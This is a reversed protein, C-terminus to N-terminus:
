LIIKNKMTIEKHVKIGDGIESITIFREKLYNELEISKEGLQIHIEIALYDILSLDLGMLFDYEGGECDIKLYNIRNLNFKKFIDDLSITKVMEYNNDDWYKSDIISANGSFNGDVYSKLKVLKNSEKGVAYKHVEVNKLNTTNKVCENFSHESPEICIIKNFINSNVIPFAGVNAGIDVAIATKNLKEPIKYAKKVGKIRRDLWDSGDDFKLM